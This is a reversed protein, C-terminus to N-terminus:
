RICDLVAEEDCGRAIITGERDLLVLTPICFVGYQEAAACQWGALDSAHLWPLELREIAGTWAEHEDDLSIGIIQLKGEPQAAYVERLRPMLARCPPCWSAWFDLLIYETQGVYDSIAFADGSPTTMPADICHSGVATQQEMLFAAHMRAYQRNAAISDEPVRQWVSDREATSMYYYDEDFVSYDFVETVPKRLSCGAMIIAALLLLFFRNTRM